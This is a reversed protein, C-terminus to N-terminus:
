IVEIEIKKNYQTVSAQEIDEKLGMCFEAGGCLTVAKVDDNGLIYNVINELEVKDVTTIEGTEENALVVPFVLPFGTCDIVARM